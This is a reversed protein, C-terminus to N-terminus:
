KQTVTEAAAMRRFTDLYNFVYIIGVALMEHGIKPLKFWQHEVFVELWHALDIRDVLKFFNIIWFLLIMQLIQMLFKNIKAMNKVIQDM